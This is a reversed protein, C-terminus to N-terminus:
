MTVVFGIGIGWNIADDTAHVLGQPRIIFYDTLNFDFGPWISIDNITGDDNFLRGSVETRLALQKNARALFEVSWNFVQPQSGTNFLFGLHGGVGVRGSQYRTSLFPNLGLDGSGLMEDVPGTPASLEMGVAGNWDQALQQMFKGYLVLDGVNADNQFSGDTFEIQQQMVFPLDIGIEGMKGLGYAGILDFRGGDINEVTKGTQKEFDRVPYGNLGLTPFNGTQLIMGRLEVWFRNEGVVAAERTFNAWVRDRDTVAVDPTSATTTTTGSTDAAGPEPQAAAAGVCSCVLVTLAVTRLAAGLM